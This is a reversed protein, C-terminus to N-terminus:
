RLVGNLFPAAAGLRNAVSEHDVADPDALIEGLPRQDLKVDALLEARTLQGDGDTDFGALLNDLGVSDAVFLGLALAQRERKSLSAQRWILWDGMTARVTSAETASIGGDDNVDTFTWGGDVCHQAAQSQCVPVTNTIFRDFDAVAPSPAPEAASVANLSGFLLFVAPLLYRQSPM